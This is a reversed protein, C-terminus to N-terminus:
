SDGGVVLPLVTKLEFDHIATNWINFVGAEIANGSSDTPGTNFYVYYDFTRIQEKVWDLTEQSAERFGESDAHWGDDQGDFHGRSRFLWGKPNSDLISIMQTKTLRWQGGLTNPDQPPHREQWMKYRKGQIELTTTVRYYKGFKTTREKVETIM